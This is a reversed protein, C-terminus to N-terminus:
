AELQEYEEPPPPQQELPQAELMPDLPPEEPIAPPASQATLDLPEIIAEAQPIKLAKLRARAYDALRQQLVYDRSYFREVIDDAINGNELIRRSESQTISLRCNMPLDRVDDPTLELIESAQGDFFTFVVRRNVNSFIVDMIGTLIRRLGAGLSMLFLDFLEDGSQTILEEEGLTESSPMSSAARDAGTLVGSKLQMFQMFLELLDMIKGTDDPLVVYKLAQEATYNDRLTYTKGHNLKLNPDKEGEKTAWPSWFTIRGSAGDRFNKRNILLDIFSQEPDLYEMWGIGWWRDAVPFARLVEFPRNGRLTVNATYEYYVPAQNRVDLVLMIEEERGDNDADYTLWCEAFLSTPNNPSGDTDKEAFDARPKQAASKPENGAGLMNRLLEVANNFEEVGEDGADYQDSFMQAVSMCSKDYDHYIFDTEGPQIGRANLPAGFDLFYCVSVDPGEFTVNKKTIKETRWVPQIPIVTVGDRKLIKRGTALHTPGPQGDPYSVAADVPMMEDIVADSITIYNGFADMIPESRPDESKVLITATRQFIQFDEKHVTKVVCEGRVGQFEIAQILRGKTECKEAVHRAYKKTKDSLKVDEVGVAETTFWENDNPGGLFYRSAKAIMQRVIRQSLSATVNSQEYINPKPISHPRDEVHNYYRATFKERKGYFSEPDCTIPFDGNTTAQIGAGSATEDPKGLQLAIQSRRELAHQVLAEEQERTLVLASKFPMRPKHPDETQPAPLQRDLEEIQNGATM